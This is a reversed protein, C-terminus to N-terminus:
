HTAFSDITLVSDFLTALQSGVEDDHVYAHRPKVTKFGSPLQPANKRLTFNQDQALVLVVLHRSLSEPCTSTTVNNLTCNRSIQNGGHRFCRAVFVEEIGCHQILGGTSMRINLFNQLAARCELM